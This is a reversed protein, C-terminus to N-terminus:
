SLVIPAFNKIWDDTDQEIWPVVLLAKCGIHKELADVMDKSAFLGLIVQMGQYNKLTFKSCMSVSYKNALKLTKGKCLDKINKESWVQNLVTNEAHKLAPMCVLCNSNYKECLAELAVVAKQVAVVNPGVAPILFRNKMM